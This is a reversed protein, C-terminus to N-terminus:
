EAYGLDRLRETVDGDDSDDSEREPLEAVIRKRSESDVVHWPVEVLEDTYQGAPHGWERIPIPFSREGVMNGHDSTVVTKGPLDEVLSEVHPLARELNEVYAEWITDAPVDLTGRMIRQWFSPPTDEDELQGKDFDTDAEIFPYHPQIYHVVLRKDPFQESVERACETTTEPPVTGVDDDWGDGHWVNRVAHLAPDLREHHRSLQPNATVYVTDTLDREAFNGRLFERTSSGRSRRKELRGPLTAHEAFMDYRCADLILLNDWDEEFIDVGSRNFKYRRGRSFYLKNMERLLLKPNNLGRRLQAGSYM